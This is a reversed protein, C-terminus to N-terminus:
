VAALREFISEAYLLPIKTKQVASVLAERTAIDDATWRQDPISALLGFAEEVTLCLNTSIETLTKISQEEWETTRNAGQNNADMESHSSGNTKKHDRAKTKTGVGGKSTARTLLTMPSSSGQLKGHAGQIPNTGAHHGNVPFTKEFIREKWEDPFAEHKVAKIAHAGFDWRLYDPVDKLFEPLAIWDLMTTDGMVGDFVQRIHTDLVHDEMKGLTIHVGDRDKEDDNDTGSQFASTTCHHHVSGAQIWGAGFRKRDEDYLPVSPLLKITMGNPEQPFAWAAWQKNAPHYFLTVMAEEKFETQTWRLFSVIESWIIFPIKAGKWTFKPKDTTVKHETCPAWGTFLPTDVQQLVRNNHIILDM